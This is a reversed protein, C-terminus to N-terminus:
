VAAAHCRWARVLQDMHCAPSPGALRGGAAAAAADAASGLAAAFAAGGCQGEPRSTPHPTGGQGAATNGPVEATAAVASGLVEAAAGAMDDEEQVAAIAAGAAGQSELTRQQEARAQTDAKHQEVAWELAADVDEPPPRKRQQKVSTAM